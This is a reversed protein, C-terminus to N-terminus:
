SFIHLFDAANRQLFLLTQKLASLFIQMAALLMASKRRSKLLFM